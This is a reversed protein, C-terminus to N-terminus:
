NTDARRPTQHEREFIALITTISQTLEAKSDLLMVGSSSSALDEGCYLLVGAFILLYRMALQPGMEATASQPTPHRLSTCSVPTAKSLCHFDVLKSISRMMEVFVYLLLYFSTFIFSLIDDYNELAVRDCCRSYLHFTSRVDGEMEREGRSHM